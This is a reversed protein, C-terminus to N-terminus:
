AAEQWTAEDTHSEGDKEDYRWVCLGILTVFLLNFGFMMLYNVIGVPDVMAFIVAYVCVGLSILAIYFRELHAALAFFFAYGIISYLYQYTEWLKIKEETNLVVLNLTEALDFGRGLAWLILLGTLLTINRRIKIALYLPCILLSGYALDVAWGRLFDGSVAGFVLICGVFIALEIKLLKM